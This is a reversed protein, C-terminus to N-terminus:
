ARRIAAAALTAAPPASRRTSAWSSRAPSASAAVQSGCAQSAHISAACVAPQIPLPQGCSSATPKGEFRDGFWDVVTPGATIVTQQHTIGDLWLTEVDSGAACSDKILLATTNPLVIQDTLSQILLLPQNPVLPKPTQETAAQQWSPLSMPNTKFYHEGLTSRALAGEGSQEACEMAIKTSERLGRESIAGSLDLNPYANPWAVTVDPGIM